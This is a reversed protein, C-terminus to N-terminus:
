FSIRDIDVNARTSGGVAEPLSEDARQITLIPNAPTISIEKNREVERLVLDLATHKGLVLAKQAKLSKKVISEYEKVKHM